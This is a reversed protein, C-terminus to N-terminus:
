KGRSVFKLIQVPNTGRWHIICRSEFLCIFSLKKNYKTFFILLVYFFNNKLACQLFFIMEQNGPVGSLTSAGRRQGLETIFIAPESRTHDSPGPVMIVFFM